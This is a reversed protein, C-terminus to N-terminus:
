NHGNSQINSHHQQDQLILRGHLIKNQYKTKKQDFELLKKIIPKPEPIYQICLSKIKYDNDKLQIFYHV